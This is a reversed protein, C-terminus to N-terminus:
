GRIGQFAALAEERSQQLDVIPTRLVPDATDGSDGDEDNGRLWRTVYSGDPDFRRAQTVPNFIRFYPAADDGCGAVWQWNFPNSAADADVLTEWFWEEGHRWHIQLNKTLLSGVVMRVRNHMTGTEWLQRMGADVLPIGTTGSRWAALDRHLDDEVTPRRPDPSGPGSWRAADNEDPDWEWPFGDFQRRVNTIHLDPREHLRHWAFDRWLLESRFSVADPPSLVDEVESWARRVSIEGFRLHPSLGSTAERDTRDRDTDYDLSGDPESLRDLFAGYRRRAAEEGPECHKALSATWAPETPNVTTLDPSVVSDRVEAPLSDVAGQWESQSLSRSTRKLGRLPDVSRTDIGPDVQTAAATAFPTFVKYPEGQGTLVDGPETLLFGAHDSVGVGQKELTGAVRDDVEHLPVHYRRHWTAGGAGTRGAIDPVIDVPDGARLLLPIGRQALSTALAAVSRGWWWRAAAGMARVGTHDPDEDVILGIVPGRHVAWALADHDTTRLDDRFWVLTPPTRNM